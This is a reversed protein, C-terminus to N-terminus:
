QKALWARIKKKETAMMLADSIIDSLQQQAATPEDDDDSQPPGDNPQEEEEEIDDDQPPQQGGPMMPSPSPKPAELLEDDDDPQPIGYTEYFYSKAIPLGMKVLREDRQSQKDLDIVQEFVFQVKPVPRDWGLNFGVIPAILQQRLSEALNECDSKTLEDEGREYVEGLSRAGKQGPDTTMPNGLIATAIAKNCHAVLEPFPMTTGGSTGKAEILEITSQSPVICAADTGLSKVASWLASKEDDSAGPHYKGMRTPMGFKECFILWDRWSARKFLYFWVVSRLLAARALPQSWEKQIHLVWQYKQLEEGRWNNADTIIRVQDHDQQYQKSPDGLQCERQPWRELCEPVFRGGDYKWVIQSLAFGKGIADTLDHISQKWGGVGGVGWKGFVIENCLDAAELAQNYEQSGDDEMAPEILIQKSAVAKRRKGLTACVQDDQEVVEFLEYQAATIGQNADNILNGLKEASLSRRISTDIYYDDRLGSYWYGQEPRAPEREPKAKRFYSLARTWPNM